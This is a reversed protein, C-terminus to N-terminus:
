ESIECSLKQSGLGEPKGLNSSHVESELFQDAVAKQFATAITPKGLGPLSHYLVNAEIM